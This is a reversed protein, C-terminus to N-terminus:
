RTGCLLFNCTASTNIASTPQLQGAVEAALTLMQRRQKFLTSNSVSCSRHEDYGKVGRVSGLSRVHCAIANADVAAM